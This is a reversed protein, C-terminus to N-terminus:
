TFNESLTKCNPITNEQFASIKKVNNTIGEPEKYTNLSLKLFIDTKFINVYFCRLGHKKSKHKYFSYIVIM